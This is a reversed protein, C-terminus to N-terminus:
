LYYVRTQHYNRRMSLCLVPNVQTSIVLEWAETIDYWCIEILLGPMYLSNSSSCEYIWPHIVTGTLIICITTKLGGLSALLWDLGKMKVSVMHLPLYSIHAGSLIQPTLLGLLERVHSQLSPYAIWSRWTGAEWLNWIIMGGFGCFSLEAHVIILWELGMTFLTPMTYGWSVGTNSCIAVMMRAMTTMPPWFWSIATLLELISPTKHVAFM